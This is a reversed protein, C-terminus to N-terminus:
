PIDEQSTLIRGCCCYHGDPLATAPLQPLHLFPENWWEEVELPLLLKSGRVLLVRARPQAAAIPLKRPPHRVSISGSRKKALPSINNENDHLCRRRHRLLFSRLRLSPRAVPKPLLARTGAPWARTGTGERRHSRRGQKMEEDEKGKKYPKIVPKPQVYM